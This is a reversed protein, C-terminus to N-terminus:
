LEDNFGANYCGINDEKHGQFWLSKVYINVTNADVSKIKRGDIDITHLAEESTQSEIRPSKLGNSLTIQIGSIPLTESNRWIDISDIQTDAPLDGDEVQEDTPWQFNIESAATKEGWLPMKKLYCKIDPVLNPQIFNNMQQLLAQCNKMTEQLDKCQNSAEDAVVQNKSKWTELDTKFLAELGSPNVSICKM